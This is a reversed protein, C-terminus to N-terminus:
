RDQFSDLREVTWFPQRMPPGDSEVAAMLTRYQLEFQRLAERVRPKREPPAHILIYQLNGRLFQGDQQLKIRLDAIGRQKDMRPPAVPMEIPNLPIVVGISAAAERLHERARVATHVAEDYRGQLVLQRAEYGRVNALHVLVQAREADSRPMRLSISERTTKVWYLPDGPVSSSAAVTTGGAAVAVLLFAAFGIALPSFILRRYRVAPSAPQPWPRSAARMLRAMGRARAEQRYAVSASAQMAAQAVKLLPLLEAAHGPYREICSQISEGRLMREICDNLADQLKVGSPLKDPGKVPSNEFTDM